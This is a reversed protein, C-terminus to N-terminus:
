FLDSGVVVLVAGAERAATVPDTETGEAAVAPLLNLCLAFVLALSFSRKKM